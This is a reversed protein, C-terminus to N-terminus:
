AVVAGSPTERRVMIQGDREVGALRQGDDYAPLSVRRDKLAHAKAGLRHLEHGLDSVNDGALLLLLEGCAERQDPTMRVIRREAEAARSRLSPLWGTM